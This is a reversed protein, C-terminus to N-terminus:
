NGTHDRVCRFDLTFNKGKNHLYLNGVSFEFGYREDSYIETGDNAKLGNFSFSTAIGLPNEYPINNWEFPSNGLYEDTLSSMMILFERQNPVRWGYPCPNKHADLWNSMELWDFEYPNWYSGQYAQVDGVKVDFSSYPQNHQSREHGLQLNIGEDPSSRLARSNIRSVDITYYQYGSESDYPGDVVAYHSPSQDSDTINIGLNRICRYDYVKTQQEVEDGKVKGWSAGEEAWLVWFNTPQYNGPGNAGNYSSTVVHNKTTGDGDYLWADEALSAQGLWLGVLQDKAALYWFIENEEFLAALARRHWEARKEERERFPVNRFDLRENFFVADLIDPTELSEVRRQNADLIRALSAWLQPDCGRYSSDHAYQTFRGDENHDEAPTRYLNVGVRLGTAALRRLMGLKGYDGIDGTYRDQM